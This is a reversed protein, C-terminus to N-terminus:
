KGAISTNIRLAAKAENWDLVIPSNYKLAAAKEKAADKDQYVLVDTLQNSWFSKRQKSRDVMFLTMGMHGPDDSAIVYGTRQEAM